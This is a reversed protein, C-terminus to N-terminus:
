LMGFMVAVLGLLGTMAAGPLMVTSAAGIKTGNSSGSSGSTGDISANYAAAGDNPTCTYKGKIASNKGAIKAFRACTSNINGSSTLNFTGRVDGIVPLELSNFTGVALVNGGVTKLAPFGDITLLSTDNVIYLASGVTTLQPMSINSVAGNSVFSLAGGVNTLNPAAYDTFTGMYFGLSGNVSSLSPTSITDAGRITANNAWILNPLSVALKAGNYSITLQETVNGLQMTIDNLFYNNTITISGATQLNIGTLSNLQTNEIDLSKLQQVGQTFALQQLAPLGTWLISGVNVLSPFNLTSLRTMDQLNFAGGIVSLQSATLQTIQTANNAILDGTISSLGSLDINDVTSEAIAISGQYIRCAAIATADAQSQITTTATNSCSSGAGAGFQAAVGNAVALAPIIFRFAAM